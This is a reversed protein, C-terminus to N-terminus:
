RKASAAPLINELARVEAGTAGTSATFAIEGSPSVDFVPDAWNSTDLQLRRAAGGFPIMWLEFKSESLQKQVVLGRDDPAWALFQSFDEGAGAEFVLHAPRGDLPAVLFGTAKGSSDRALCGLTKGDHSIRSGPGDCGKPLPILDHEVSSRVDRQLLVREGGRAVAYIIAAGNRTWDFLAPRQTEDVAFPITENTRLDILHIGRRGKLDTGMAAILRGDASLRQVQVYNLTQRIDRVVGSDASHISSTCPGGGVSGCSMFLLEMGDASFSPRGRSNIFQQFTPLGQRIAGTELDVSVRKVVPASASKWVYLTGSPTLGLSLSSALDSRLMVPTGAPKGADLPLAWLALRGTRDSAFLVQRGDASWGMVRNRTSDAIIPTERSADVAMIFVSSHRSGDGADVDFAIHRGDPSFLAKNVGRWNVSKLVRLTGQVTSLLGLQSTRDEREVLVVLSRGDPSWDFPRVSESGSGRWITRPTPVGSGTLTVVRVEYQLPRTSGWWRYAAQAGDRSITSWDGGGSKGADNTLQRSINAILDRVMLDSTKTWDVYTLYRGDPSVTGYLDVEPGTWVARDGRGAAVRAAGIRSRAIAAEKQDGFDRVLREYVRQAEKDGLTQYCEAMRLLATAAAARDPGDAVKRYLEIAEKLDGKVKELEMAKRLTVDPATQAGVPGHLLVLTGLVVILMRRLMGNM